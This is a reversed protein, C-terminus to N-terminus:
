RAPHERYVRLSRGGLIVKKRPRVKAFPNQGNETDLLQMWRTGAPAPPLVFEAGEHSANVM